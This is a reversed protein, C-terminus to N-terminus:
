GELFMVLEGGYTADGAVTAGEEEFM